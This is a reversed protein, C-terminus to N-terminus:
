REFLYLITNNDSVPLDDPQVTSELLRHVSINVVIRSGQGEWMVWPIKDPGRITYNYPIQQALNEFRNKM